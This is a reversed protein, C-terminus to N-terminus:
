ANVVKGAKIDKLQQETAAVEAFKAGYKVHIANMAIRNNDHYSFWTKATTASGNNIIFKALDQQTVTSDESLKLIAANIGGKTSASKTLGFEEALKQAAKANTAHDFTVLAQVIASYSKGKKSLDTIFKKTTANM